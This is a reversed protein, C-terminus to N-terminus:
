CKPVLMASDLPRGCGVAFGLRLLPTSGACSGASVVAAIADGDGDRDAYQAHIRKLSPNATGQTRCTAAEGLSDGAHGAPSVSPRDSGANRRRGRSPIISPYALWLIDYTIRVIYVYAPRVDPTLSWTYREREREREGAPRLGQASPAASSLQQRLDCHWALTRVDWVRLASDLCPRHRLAVLAARPSVLRLGVARLAVEYLAM